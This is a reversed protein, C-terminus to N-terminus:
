KIYGEIMVDDIFRHVNIDKVNLCDKMFEPGDGNSIPIGGCLIKPGYFFYIKDVIKSILASAIIRSGGEILLSTIGLSGLKDMLPDLDILNDKLRTEIIEVGKSNMRVKKALLVADESIGDGTIVYTKSNSEQNFIKSDESVSLRTDLIIRSPDINEKGEIRTTLSPNDKKVTDVGVMIADLGQRLKHVFERSEPCTIWKSDGTKTAIRGDLTSACKLVVFPRKTKIYKIFIENLKKAETECIGCSTKIHHEELYKIGGGTVDPNPDKMAIVVNIIGADIIKRTCPPTKGTHNCPELTVYITAGKAQIGADEIANVEAHPGGYEKHWGKGVIEGNKVVVAGVMPNPSTFGTGKKALDIAMKMYDIDNM